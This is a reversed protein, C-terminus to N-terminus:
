PPPAINAREQAAPAGGSSRDANPDILARRRPDLTLQDLLAAGFIEGYRGAFWATSLVREQLGGEPRTAQRLHDFRQQAVGGKRAAAAEVKASFAELAGLLSDRTKTWPKELTPDLAIAPGRLEDVLLEAARRAGAVFGGGAQAALRSALAEPAFLLEELSAGLERLHDRQRGDFILAQPRLATWPAAVGLVPYVAAAQALYATEGPGMVQLTTGLVADQIAPRALVGPSVLGPDSALAALLGAVPEPGERGPAGRLRFGDDGSWEIRRRAGDRLLFLPSAGRQPAVQLEFGRGLVREDAAAYAAEVEVRRDILTALLPREASKLEPLMSDLLLPSRAGLLAIMQQAFADGFRAGNAWWSALRERWAAFRQNPFSEALAAILSEIEPGITRAGVPALPAPDDGLALRLLGDPGLFTASEVEGWDHDETAMWFIAVAPRGAAELAEVYRVATAAKVLALLPGGFLGTQQGGVVVATAPDALKAALEAARPHGYGANTRALGAAIGRRDIPPAAMEPLTGPALLRLPSLLDTERGALWAAPMGKVLGNAILDVELSTDAM